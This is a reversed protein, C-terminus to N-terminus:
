DPWFFRPSFREFRAMECLNRAMKDFERADHQHSYM